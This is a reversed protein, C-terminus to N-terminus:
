GSMSATAPRPVGFEKSLVEAIARPKLNERRLEVIRQDHQQLYPRVARGDRRVYPTRGYRVPREVLGRTIMFWAVTGAHRNLIRAVKAPTPNNLTAALREIEGREQDSLRGRKINTSTM